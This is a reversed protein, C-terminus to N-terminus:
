APPNPRVPEMYIKDDDVTLVGDFQQIIREHDQKTVFQVTVSIPGEGPFLTPFIVARDLYIEVRRWATPREEGGLVFMFRHPEYQEGHSCISEPWAACRVTTGGRSVTLLPILSQPDRAM